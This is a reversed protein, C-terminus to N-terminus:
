RVFPREAVRLDIQTPTREFDKWQRQIGQLIAVKRNLDGNMGFIVNVGDVTRFNLGNQADFYFTQTGPLLTQLTLLAQLVAPQMQVVPIGGPGIVQAEGDPRPIMAAQQLDVLRLLPQAPAKPLPPLAIGQDDVWAQGQNTEWAIRPRRETISLQVLNPLQLRARVGTVYPTRELVRAAITQENLWFVNYGEIGAAQYIEDASLLSVGQIDASYVYFTDFTMVVYLLGALLGVLLFAPWKRLQWGTGRLAERQVRIPGVVISARYSRQRRSRAAPAAPPRRRTTKKGAM